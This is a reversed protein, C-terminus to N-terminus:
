KNLSVKDDDKLEPNETPLLRNGDYNFYRQNLIHGDANYYEESVVSFPSEVELILKGNKDKKIEAKINNGKSFLHKDSEIISISGSANQSIFTSEPPMNKSLRSTFIKSTKFADHSNDMKGDMTELIFQQEDDQLFASCNAKPFIQPKECYKGSEIDIFQKVRTGSTHMIKYSCNKGKKSKEIKEVKCDVLNTVNGTSSLIFCPYFEPRSFTIINKRLNLGNLPIGNKDIKIRSYPDYKLATLHTIDPQTLKDFLVYGDIGNNEYKEYPCHALINDNEDTLVYHVNEVLNNANDFEITNVIYVCVTEIKQYDNYPNRYRSVHRVLTDIDKQSRIDIQDILKRRLVLKNNKCSTDDLESKIERLQKLTKSSLRTTLMSTCAQYNVSPKGIEEVPRKFSTLIEQILKERIQYEELTLTDIIIESILKLKSYKAM